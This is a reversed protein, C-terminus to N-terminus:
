DFLTLHEVGDVEAGSPARVSTLFGIVLLAILALVVIGGLLWWLDDPRRSVEGPSSGNM